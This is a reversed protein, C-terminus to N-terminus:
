GYSHWFFTLTRFPYVDATPLGNGHIYLHLLWLYLSDLDNGAQTNVTV